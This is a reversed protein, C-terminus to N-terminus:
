KKEPPKAGVVPKPAWFPDTDAWAKPVYSMKPGFGFLLTQSWEVAVQSVERTRARGAEGVADRYAPANHMPGAKDLDALSTRPQFYIYTGDQLGSAVQYFAWGEELNAKEHAAVQERWNDVFERGRGPKVRILQVSMYRFRALSSGARYSMAPRYNAAIGSARSLLEGDQAWLKRTEASLVENADGAKISKEWEEWSGFGTLFWAEVPGTISTMAVYNNTWKAKAHAAPWGAENAEHAADKGPKVEERFIQLIAPPADAAPPAQALAPSVAGVALGALFSVRTVLKM